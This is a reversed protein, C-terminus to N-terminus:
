DTQIVLAIDGWRDDAGVAESWETPDVYLSVRNRRARHNGLDLEVVGTSTTSYNVFTGNIRIQRLGPVARLRLVLQDHAALPQPSGFNRHLAFREAPRHTWATPLDIRADCGDDLPSCPGEWAKRLHIKHERM